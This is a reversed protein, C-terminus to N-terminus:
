DWLPIARGDFTKGGAMRRYAEFGIQAQSKEELQTAM